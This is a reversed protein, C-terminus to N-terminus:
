PKAPNKPALSLLRLLFNVINDDWVNKTFKAIVSAALVVYAVINLVDLGNNLIWDM